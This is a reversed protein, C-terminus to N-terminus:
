LFAAGTRPLLGKRLIRLALLIKLAIQAWFTSGADPM